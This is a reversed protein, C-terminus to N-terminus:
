SESIVDLDEIYVWWYIDSSTILSHSWRVQAQENKGAYMANKSIDKYMKVVIGILDGRDIGTWSWRNKYKVLDGPKM